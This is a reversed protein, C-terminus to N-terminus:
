ALLEGVGGVGGVGGLRGEGAAADLIVAQVRRMRSKSGKNQQGIAGEM